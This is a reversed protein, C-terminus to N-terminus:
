PLLINDEVFLLLTANLPIKKRLNFRRFILINKGEKKKKPRIITDVDLRRRSAGLAVRERRLRERNRALATANHVRGGGEEM